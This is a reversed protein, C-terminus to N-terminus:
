ISNILKNILSIFSIMSSVVSGVFFIPVAWFIALSLALIISVPYIKIKSAYDIPVLAIVAFLNFVDDSLENKKNSNKKQAM